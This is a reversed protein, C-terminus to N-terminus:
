DTVGVGWSLQYARTRGDNDEKVVTLAIGIAEPFVKALFEEAHKIRDDLPLAAPQPRPMPTIVPCNFRSILCSDALPEQVKPQAQM